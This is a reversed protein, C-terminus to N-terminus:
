VIYAGKPIVFRVPAQPKLEAYYCSLTQRLRNVHVRVTSDTQPDWNSPRDFVEIGLVQEKIPEGRGNLAPEALRQLLQSLRTSRRFTDSALIDQLHERMVEGLNM